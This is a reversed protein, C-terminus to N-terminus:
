GQLRAQATAKDVERKTQQASAALQELAMQGRQFEQEFAHRKPGSWNDSTEDGLLARRQQARVGALWKLKWELQTLQQSLIQAADFNYSGM